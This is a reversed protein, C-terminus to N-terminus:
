SSCEIRPPRTLAASIPLRAWPSCTAPRKVLLHGLGSAGGPNEDQATDGSAIANAMVADIATFLSM